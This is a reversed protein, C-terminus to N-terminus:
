AAAPMRKLIVQDGWAQDDVTIEGATAGLVAYLPIVEGIEAAEWVGDHTLTSISTATHGDCVQVIVTDVITREIESLFESNAPALALFDRKVRNFYPVERRVVKGERELEDLIANIMRPVPGFQRKEYEAGSISRGTLRYAFVDSYWLIKNLKTAGLKRADDVRFCIYHVLEKFTSSM